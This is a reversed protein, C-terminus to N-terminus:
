FHSSFPTKYGISRNVDRTYPNKEHGLPYSWYPHRLLHEFDRVRYKAERYKKSESDGSKVFGGWM